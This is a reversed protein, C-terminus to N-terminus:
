SRGGKQTAPAAPPTRRAIYEYGDILAGLECPQSADPQYVALAWRALRNSWVLLRIALEWRLRAIM